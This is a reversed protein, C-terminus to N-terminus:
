YTTCQVSQGLPNCRTIVPTAPAPTAPVPRPAAIVAAADLQARQRERAAAVYPSCDIGRRAVEADMDANSYISHAARCLNYNSQRSLEGADAFALRAPSGSCASVLACSSAIVFARIINKM